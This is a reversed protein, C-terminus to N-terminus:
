DTPGSFTRCIRKSLEPGVGKIKLKKVLDERERKGSCAVYASSLESPNKYHEAIAAAKKSSVGPIVALMSRWCRAPTMNDSKRTHVSLPDEGRGGPCSYTIQPDGSNSLPEVKGDMARKSFWGLIEATHDVNRTRVVGIGNVLNRNLSCDLLKDSIGRNNGDWGPVTPHEVLYLPRVRQSQCTPILRAAQNALRRDGFSSRLDSWTKREIALVPIGSSNYICFDGVELTGVEYKVGARELAERVAPPERSDVRLAGPVGPPPLFPSM